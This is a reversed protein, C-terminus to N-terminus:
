WEGDRQRAAGGRRGSSVAAMRENGARKRDRGDARRRGSPSLAVFRGQRGCNQTAEGAMGARNQIRAAKTPITRAAAAM